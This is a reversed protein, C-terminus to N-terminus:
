GEHSIESDVVPLEIKFTSGENLQSEVKIQGNFNKIIGYSVTLGLGTGKGVNKTTYFPEFIKSLNERSIGVGNDTFHINIFSNMVFSKIRIVGKEDKLADVANILINIFVQLLQDSVLFVRPLKVDLEFFININKARRDYKVINVSNRLVANVDVYEAEYNSPRAFDVLERVIKSIRDINQLITTSYEIVQADSVRRKILQTMSSISTLPNGIEHAVGAALLGLSAMKEQHSIQFQADRLALTREEIKSELTTYSELLKRRMQEFEEALIKIEDRSEIKIEQTLDGESIKNAAKILEHIPNTIRRSLIVAGSFVIVLIVINAAIIQNLFEELEGYMGQTSQKLRMTWKSDLSKELVIEPPNKFVYEMLKPQINNEVTKDERSNEQIGDERILIDSQSLILEFSRNRNDSRLMQRFFGADAKQFITYDEVENKIFLIKGKKSFILQDESNVFGSLEETIEPNLSNIYEVRSGKLVLLNENSASICPLIQKSSIISEPKNLRSKVLKTADQKQISLLNTIHEYRASIEDELLNYHIQRIINRNFYYGLLSFIFLPVFSFVLIYLIFRTNLGSLRTHTIHMSM